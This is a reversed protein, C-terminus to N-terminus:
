QLQETQANVNLTDHEQTQSEKISASVRMLADSVTGYARLPDTYTDQCAEYDYEDDLLNQQLYFYRTGIGLVFVLAIVAAAKLLPLWRNRPAIRRVTTVPHEIEALVREDFDKGLGIHSATQQYAFLAKYPLLHAPVEKQQFFIRLIQEEELSTECQWYRELLQEIYKYDM